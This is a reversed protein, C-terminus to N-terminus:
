GTIEDLVGGFIKNVNEDVYQKLWCLVEPNSIEVPEIIKKIQDTDLVFRELSNSLTIILRKFHVNCVVAVVTEGMNGLPLRDVHSIEFCARIRTGKGPESHIEFTGGSALCAERFLPIGLGIKRTKRSTYFPDSVKQLTEADMGIGDDEIVAELLNKDIHACISLSITSACAKLSNEIIDLFHSSLEKM